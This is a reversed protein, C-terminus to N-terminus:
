GGRLQSVGKIRCFDWVDAIVVTLYNDSRREVHMMGQVADAEPVAEFVIRVATAEDPELTIPLDKRRYNNVVGLRGDADVFIEIGLM